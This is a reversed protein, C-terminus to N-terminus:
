VAVVPTFHAAHAALIRKKYIVPVDVARVPYQITFILDAGAGRMIVERLIKCFLGMYRPTHMFFKLSVTATMVPAALLMPCASATCQACSPIRPYNKGIDLFRLQHPGSLVPFRTKVSKKLLVCPV